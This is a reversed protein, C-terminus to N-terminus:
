LKGLLTLEYVSWMSPSFLPSKRRGNRTPEGIYTNEFYKLLQQVLENDDKENNDHWFELKMLKKFAPLIEEVSMFALALLHRINHAFTSDSTYRSQLGVAQIHRWISQCFHFFCGHMTATPFASKAANIAGIEFDTIIHKPKFQPVRNSIVKFAKEYMKKQKNPALIYVLPVFWGNM